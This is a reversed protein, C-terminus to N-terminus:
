GDELDDCKCELLNKDCSGCPIAELKKKLTENEDMIAVQVDALADENDELRAIEEELKAVEDAWEELTGYPMRMRESLKM